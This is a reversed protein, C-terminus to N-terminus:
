DQLRRCLFAVRAEPSRTTCFLIRDGGEKIALQQRIAAPELPFFRKKVVLSEGRFRQKLLQPAYPLEEIIEYRRLFPSPAPTGILLSSAPHLREADLREAVEEVLSARLLAPSLEVLCKASRKQLEFLNPSYVQGDQVAAPYEGEGWHLVCEKLTWGEAIRTIADAEADRVMPSVKMHVAGCQARLLPLVMSPAPTYNELAVRRKGGPRRDPDIFCHAFEGLEPLVDELKAHVFRVNGGVLRVNWAACVLVDWDSEVAVIELGCEALTMLEGGIGACAVLVRGSAWAAKYRAIAEGTAQEAGTPTFLMESARSFRAAHDRRLHWVQALRALFPHREKIRLTEGAVADLASWDAQAAYQAFDDAECIEEATWYRLIM